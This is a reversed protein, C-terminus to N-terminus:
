QNKMATITLLGKSSLHSKLTSADVDTPLKYARYIERSVSGYEDSRSDHRCNILIDSGAVKVQIFASM